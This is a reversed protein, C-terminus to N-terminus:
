IVFPLQCIAFLFACSLHSIAFLLKWIEPMRTRRHVEANVVRTTPLKSNVIRRIAYRTASALAGPVAFRHLPCRLRCHAFLFAFSLNGFPLPLESPFHSIAFQLNPNPFQFNVIPFRCNFIPFQVNPISFQFNFM